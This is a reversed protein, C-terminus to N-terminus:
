LRARRRTGIVKGDKILYEVSEDLPHRFSYDYRAREEAIRQSMRDEMALALLRDQLLQLRTDMFFDPVDFTFALQSVLQQGNSAQLSCNAIMFTPALAFLAFKDAQYEQLARVDDKMFEQRGTHLLVHGLEHALQIRQLKQPLRSDLLISYMQDDTEIHKSEGEYLHIWIGADYAFLELDIDQPCQINHNQYMSIVASELPTPVYKELSEFM